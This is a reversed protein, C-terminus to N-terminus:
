FSLSRPEQPQLGGLSCCPPHRIPVARLAEQCPLPRESDTAPGELSSPGGTINCLDLIAPQFHPHPHIYLLTSRLPATRSDTAQPFGSCLCSRGPPSRSHRPDLPPRGEPAGRGAAKDGAAQSWSWPPAMGKARGEKM